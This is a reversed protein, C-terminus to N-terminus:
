EAELPVHLQRTEGTIIGGRNGPELSGGMIEAYAEPLPREDAPSIWLRLLHRQKSADQLPLAPRPSPSRSPSAPHRSADWRCCHTPVWGQGGRSGRM